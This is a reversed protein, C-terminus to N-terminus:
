LPRPILEWGGCSLYCSDTAEPGPYETTETSDQYLLSHLHCESMCGLGFFHMWICGLCFFAYVYFSFNKWFNDNINENNMIGEAFRGM